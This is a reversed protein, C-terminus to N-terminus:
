LYAPPNAPKENSKLDRVDGVAGAVAPLILTRRARLHARASVSM